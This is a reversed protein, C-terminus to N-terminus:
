SSRARRGPRHPSKKSEIRALIGAMITRYLEKGLVKDEFGSDLSPNDNVEIM